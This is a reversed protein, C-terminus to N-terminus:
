WVESLGDVVVAPVEVGIWAILRSHREGTLRLREHRRSSDRLRRPDGLTAEWRVCCIASVTQRLHSLCRLRRLQDRQNLQGNADREHLREEDVAERVVGVFTLDATVAPPADNVAHLTLAVRVRLGCKRGHLREERSWRDCSEPRATM